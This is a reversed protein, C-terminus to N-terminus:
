FAGKAGAPLSGVLVTAITARTIQKRSCCSLQMDNCQGETEFISQKPKKLNM